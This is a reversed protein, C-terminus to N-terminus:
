AAKRRLIMACAALLALAVGSPEPVYTIQYIVGEQAAPVGELSM